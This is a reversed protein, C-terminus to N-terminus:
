RDLEKKLRQIYRERPTLHEWEEYRANYRSTIVDFMVAVQVVTLRYLLDLSDIPLGYRGLYYLRFWHYVEVITHAM